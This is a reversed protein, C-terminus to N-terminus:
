DFVSMGLLEPIQMMSYGLFIGIFGGLNSIFDQFDFDKLQQIEEYYKELYQIEVFFCKDCTYVNELWNWVVSNFMDICPEEHDDLMKKYDERKENVRKLQKPSNCEDLSSNKTSIKEWFPVICGTENNVSEQLYLDHNEINHDCPQDSISRKKLLTSQSIKFISSKNRVYDSVSTFSPSDLSRTLQGPYHILIAVETDSDLLSMDLTVSDKLRNLASDVSSDRTVCVLNQTQYGIHFLPEELVQAISIGENNGFWLSQNTNKNTFVRAKHDTNVFSVQQIIESLEFSVHVVDKLTDQSKVDESVLFKSYLRSSHNYDYRFAPQGLLLNEYDSSHLGYAKFITSADFKYLGNGRFCVSFSPYQGDLTNDYQQYAISTANRDERFRGIMKLTMYLALLFCIVDFIVRFRGLLIKPDDLM